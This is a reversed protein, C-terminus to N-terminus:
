TLYGVFEYYGSPMRHWSLVAYGVHEGYEEFVAIRKRGENDHFDDQDDRDLYLDYGQLVDDFACVAHGKTQYYGIRGAFCESGTSLGAFEERVPHGLKITKRQTITTM